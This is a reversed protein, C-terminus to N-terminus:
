QPSNLRMRKRSTFGAGDVRGSAQELGCPSFYLRSAFFVRALVVFFLHIGRRRTTKQHPTFFSSFLVRHGRTKPSRTPFILEALVHLRNGPNPVILSPMGSMAFLCTWKEFFSSTAPSEPPLFRLLLKRVPRACLAFDQAVYVDWM